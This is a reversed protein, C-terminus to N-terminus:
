RLESRALKKERRLQGDLEYIAAMIADGAIQIIAYSARQGRDRRAKLHGPNVLLKGGSCELRAEHTHGACQIAADHGAGRVIDERTHACAVTIGEYSEVLVKPIRGDGYEECWLGPVVRAPYGWAALEEGDGYNDGLHLLTEAHHHQIMQEAALRMLARNGHTDSLVGLIM